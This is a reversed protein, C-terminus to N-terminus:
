LSGPGREAHKSGEKCQPRVSGRVYFSHTPSCAEGEGGPSLVYQPTPRIPHIRLSAGDAGARVVAWGPLDPLLPGLGLGPGWTSMSTQAPHWDEGNCNALDPQPRLRCGRPLSPILHGPLAGGKRLGKQCSSPDMLAVLLLHTWSSLLVWWPQPARLLWAGRRGKRGGVVRGKPLLVGQVPSPTAM